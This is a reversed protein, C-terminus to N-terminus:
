GLARGDLDVADLLSSDDAPKADDRGTMNSTAVMALLVTALSFSENSLTFQHFTLM